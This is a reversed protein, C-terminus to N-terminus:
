GGRPIAPADQWSREIDVGTKQRLRSPLGASGSPPARLQPGPREHSMMASSALTESIRHMHQQDQRRMALLALRALLSGLGRLQLEAYATSRARARTAIGQFRIGMGDVMFWATAVRALSV